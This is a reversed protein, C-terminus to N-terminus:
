SKQITILVAFFERSEHEGCNQYNNNKRGGSAQDRLGSGLPHPPFLPLPVNPVLPLGGWLSGTEKKNRSRRDIWEKLRVLFAVSLPCLTPPSSSSFSNVKLHSLLELSHISIFNSKTSPFTAQLSETPTWHFWLCQNFWFTWDVGSGYLLVGPDGNLRELM